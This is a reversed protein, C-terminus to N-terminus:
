KFLLSKNLFDRVIREVSLGMVIILLVFFILMVLCNHEMLPTYMFYINIPVMVIALLSLILSNRVMRHDGPHEKNRKDTYMLGFGICYFITHFLLIFYSVLFVRRVGEGYYTTITYNPYLITMIGSIIFTALGVVLSIKGVRYKLSSIFEASIKEDSEKFFKDGYKYTVLLAILPGVLMTFYLLFRTYDFVYLRTQPVITNGSDDLRMYYVKFYNGPGANIYWVMHINDQSDTRLKLSFIAPGHHDWTSRVKKHHVVTMTDVLINGSEDEKSYYIFADAGGCSDSKIMFQHTNGQSDTINLESPEMMSTPMTYDDVSKPRWTRKGDSSFRVYVIDQEDHRHISYSIFHIHADDNEDITIQPREANHQYNNVFAATDMLIWPVFFISILINVLILIAILVTKKRKMKRFGGDSEADSLEM